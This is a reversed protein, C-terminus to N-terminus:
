KWGESLLDRKSKGIAGAVQIVESIRERDEVTMRRLKHAVMESVATPLGQKYINM